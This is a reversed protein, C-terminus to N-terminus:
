ASHWDHHRLYEAISFIAEDHGFMDFRGRQRVDVGPSLINALM